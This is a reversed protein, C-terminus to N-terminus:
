IAELESMFDQLEDLDQESNINLESILDVYAQLTEAQFLLALPLNVGLEIQLRAMVQTALLSHGGLEFFNDGLGVRDLKLVDAWVAAVRQELETRPAVYEGQLSRADAVPLAKRDLKGNATLPLAELLMLHAPVMYDPLDAKLASRLVERLQSQSEPSDLVAADAPVVYAVLQQGSPGDQALIAAQRVTQQALLCAEIEGLEIRFGRIKVQHDIRGMYEIVGDSRYCALDGSRYLRSGCAGFPDPIFREATLGARGFYGRAVGAEGILLEGHGGRVVPNLASDLVYWSLDPIVEGIPSIAGQRLDDLTIPRYTVHVTTETIGYMNVLRPQSDGFTDFWPKLSAVELAEGGFVVHRLMLPQGAVARECAIPMLQKFASPTQNLVTVQERVLLAHFEDFSRAVDKSVIVAKGGYVLAGFLEWVSFDFAYSHFVTWVDTADFGFWDQTAAFLRVVNSHPLLTGKPKGTSGSTYIVYALNEAAVSIGLNAASYEAFTDAVVDLCQVHVPVPLTQAVHAETLLLAIGSDEFMYALREQPYGPDLPVYAGGAKLIGLLAVVMELSRDLAVGVLVDPGVGLERLKRALRNARSNLEGYSLTRDAFVLAQADPAASVQHEILEHLAQTHAFRTQRPNWARLTHQYEDADLLPLEGIAQGPDRILAELVNHLHCAVQEIAAESWRARDHRYQISLGEGLSVLLTLPYNTQEQVSVEGFHLGGPAGQKLAESVPYSEFVVLSDFLSEGGLGAWRQVDYLPTHEFERLALNCAQVQAVWTAVTQEARPAAVVPLTNIFLGVQEEVGPLDTPRGAVTAGFCVASQGTYRQLVLLWASQVLTNVTVRNTRAFAEIRATLQTDFCQQLDCQGIGTPLQPERIAKALHTPVQLDLLQGKWFTEAAARDQRQLWAIYDRYSGAQSPLPQGAYRQLVEGLLRSSSWGDMLIHHSTYILRHREDDTRVLVLRLLPAQDLAFGQQREGEALAQLAQQLAPQGRWDYETIPLEVQKHVVQVAQELTGQWFFGSRLTPHAELAAQWAQGFRKVDLGDVDVQLQNIYSGAQQEYLTHFLMGQQMPSLPYIDAVQVAPTPLSDLQQQSLGALPFDSPTIGRHQEQCCHAIVDVLAQQYSTALWEVTEAHFIAQSYNWELRLEGGYVQGSVSLLSALTSAPDQKAGDNESAPVFLGASDDFSGDFQGLYNFVVEGQPLAALEAGTEVGSLYRLLGYGLGKGPVARLQEKITKISDALEAQPTLKVPYMSTFWGVTRSVDMGDFLDERGHGELRVLVAERETWRSLVQALATLLLDNIQTRYAAPADQLLQRTTERDLRTTFSAAHCQQNSGGPIDRPLTDVAGQLQEQWYAQEARVGASQAYVQLQEAWAKFAHTKNPLNLPQGAAFARYALQLDDLLVRWSVGDVVLHHVVLLLRQNGDPLEALVARLLPGRELALSRQADNALQEFAEIDTVRMSWLLQEAEVAAYEADVRGDVQMFRLRLADHHELLARLAADLHVTDLAEVPNLLVSQNWHHREPIQREFFWHQIPTLPASGTVAAQDILQSHERRAVLALAQVTQHEFLDKPTFQIDAQRARSVVQLSIISDGGLEFFNDTLGVQELKLVDAWIAAIQQELESQPAVYEGQLASADPQPLAKRDLKGNPTVPLQELLLLHTPVMYDPLGAKLAERLSDRLASQEQTSDAPVVYGVLQKGSPGDQALVVAEQVSPLELLRAEIEGLEIRLGRIKVQHDIRGAYDIVGDARYRALDGTRYLRGGNDSFPDPVFREATLAPRQHYGRALGVGGLYM